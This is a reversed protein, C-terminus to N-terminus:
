KNTIVFFINIKFNYSWTRNLIFSDKVERESKKNQQLQYTKPQFSILGHKLFNLYYSLDAFKQFFLENLLYISKKM